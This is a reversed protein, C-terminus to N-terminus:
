FSPPIAFHSQFIKPSIHNSRHGSIDIGREKMVIQAEETAQSGELAITGSSRAEFGQNRLKKHTSVYHNFLAEAMPSRCM